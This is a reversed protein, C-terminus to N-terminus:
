GSSPNSGEEFKLRLPNTFILSNPIMFTEGSSNLVTYRLNIESVKGECGSVVLFDGVRFFRYLLILGGALLNSLADKLAFGLAFGGLGLGAIIPGMKVGMTNLGTLIGLTFIAYQFAGSILKIIGKEWGLGYLLRQVSRKALLAGGIFILIILIGVLIKPALQVLTDKFELAAM